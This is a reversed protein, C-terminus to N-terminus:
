VTARLASAAQPSVRSLSGEGVAWFYALLALELWGHFTALSLYTNRTSIPSCVSGLAMVVMAAGLTWCGMSGFDRLLARAKMRFNPSGEARADDQPIAVLWIAYHVSQLFAFTLTLSLGFEGSLGPALQDAIEFLHLGFLSVLGYRLTFVLGIGSLLALSAITIMALPLWASNGRRFLMVWILIAVLNHAHLMGIRFPEPHVLAFSGLACAVMLSLVGRVRSRSMVLGIAAGALLQCSGAVHEVVLPARLLRLGFMIVAFLALASCMVRPLARRAVLYRIDAAIHPVGLVLPTFVLSLAPALLALAFAALAHACVLWPVRVARRVVIRRLTPVRVVARWLAGRADDLPELAREALISM